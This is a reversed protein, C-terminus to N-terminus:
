ERDEWQAWCSNGSRPFYFYKLIWLCVNHTILEHWFWFYDKKLAENILVQLFHIISHMWVPTGFVENGVDYLLKVM